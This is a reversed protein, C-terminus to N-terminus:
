TKENLEAYREETMCFTNLKGKGRILRGKDYYFLDYGFPDLFQIIKENVCEILFIPRYKRITNEGGKLVYLEHGQVDIKIFYPNLNFDDLTKLECNLSEVRVKNINFRWFRDKNLWEKAARYDLSALGDFMWKGYFPVYLPLQVNHDSLGCMHLVIRSNDRILPNHKIEKFVLSNPEFAIIKNKKLNEFLLMSIITMGRNAGIDVLVQDPEPNFTALAYFDQEHPTKTLKM